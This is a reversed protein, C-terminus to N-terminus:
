QKTAVYSRRARVKLAPDKVRVELKHTKGDLAQPTFGLVYQRHLEEAVRRFTAALDATGTLEFYGGGTQDAIAQLGKDPPDGGGFGRWRGRPGFPSDGVLGIAYVMVNEQVAREMVDDLSNNNARQPNMPRDAGDTFILVVRRGEQHLLGTIGVNVANWLPTPGETQLETRLIDLLVQRDSTFERPDVQIRGAFSGIRAQDTPLFQEVLAEAAEEVLTFKRRMSGSRDLMMIITIRQVDNAFVTIDQRKGNDYVEFADRELGTVLRGGAETVTAYIAVTRVGAKFTPEQASLMALALGGQLLGVLVLSRWIVENLSYVDPVSMMLHAHRRYNVKSTASM